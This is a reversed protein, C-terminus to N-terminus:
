RATSTVASLEAVGSCVTSCLVVVHLLLLLAHTECYTLPLGGLLVLSQLFYPLEAVFLVAYGSLMCFLAHTECCTLLCCATFLATCDNDAQMALASLVANYRSM